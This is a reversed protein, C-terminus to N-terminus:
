SRSATRVAKAKKGGRSLQSLRKEVLRAEERLCNKFDRMLRSEPKMAPTIMSAQIMRLPKLPVVACADRNTLLVTPDAIMIANTALALRCGVDISSVTYLLKAELGEVKFAQELDERAPGMANAILGHGVLDAIRVFNRPALVHDHRMVVAMPIEFLPEVEIAPIGAYVPAALAIDFDVGRRFRDLDHVRLVEFDIEVDPYSKAFRGITPLALVSALRSSTAFKLRSRGEGALRRAVRPLEDVAVLARHCEHYYQEGEVTPRLRQGERSFLKLGTSRELGSLARSAASPSMNLEAAAAALSGRRIVHLFLRIAQLNM